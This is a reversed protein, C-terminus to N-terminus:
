SWHISDAIAQSKEKELLLEVLKLAFQTATGAGRSTILPHDVIVDRSPDLEPLSPELTFHGTFTRGQLLGARDLVKPAACIAAVWKGNEIQQRLMEHLDTRNELNAIGPGGPLVIMDYSQRPLRSLNADAILTIQNKGTVTSNEDTSAVVVTVGARRLIDIPTIAEMEEFGPHLLVLASPSPSPDTAM